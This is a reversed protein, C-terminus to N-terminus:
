LLGHGAADYADEIRKRAIEFYGEDKEIGIFRRGTNACAVGTTGSGMFPDLVSDGPNSSALVLREFLKVPKQTPHSKSRTTACRWVPNQCHENFTAKAKRGFVCCELGSLWLSQGNMPSPNTKEWICLRTTLGASVLGARIRSVQETGCFVYVSQRAVRASEAVFADLDFVADDAVGKDLNRLGGSARNVGNYPVDTLIVDVSGAALTPM